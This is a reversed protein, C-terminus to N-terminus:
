RVVFGRGTSEPDSLEDVGPEPVTISNPREEDEDDRPVVRTGVDDGTSYGPPPGATGCVSLPM